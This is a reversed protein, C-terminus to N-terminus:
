RRMNKNTIARKKVMFHHRDAVEINKDRDELLGPIFYSVEPMMNCIAGYDLIWNTM